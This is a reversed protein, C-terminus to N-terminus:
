VIGIFHRRFRREKGEEKKQFAAQKRESIGQQRFKHKRIQRRIPVRGDSKVGGFAM